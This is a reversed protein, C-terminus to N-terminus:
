PLRSGGQQGSSRGVPPCASEEDGDSGASDSNRVGRVANLAASDEVAHMSDIAWRVFGDPPNRVGYINACALSAIQHWGVLGSLGAHRLDAGAFRAGTVTASDLVTQRLDAKEFDAESLDASRLNTGNLQAERMRAGAIKIDELHVGRLKVGYLPFDHEVLDELAAARAGSEQQGASAAIVEWEKLFRDLRRDHREDMWVGFAVLASAVTLIKGIDELADRHRRVWRLWPPLNVPESDAM